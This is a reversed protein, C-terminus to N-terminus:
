KETKVAAPAPWYEPLVSLIQLEEPSFRKQFQPRALIEARGEPTEKSLRVYAGRVAARRDDPLDNFAKIKETVLARKDPPLAWLANLRDLQRQKQEETQKDFNELRKRINAQQQQPLKELARERAEPSM